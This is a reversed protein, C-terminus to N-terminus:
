QVGGGVGSDTLVALYRQRAAAPANRTAIRRMAASVARRAGEGNDNALLTRATKLARKLAAQNGPPFFLDEPYGEGLLERHVPIDTLVCLLGAQIGEAVAYSFAELEAYSGSILISYALLRQPMDDVYGHLHLWSFQTGIKQLQDRMPGDGYVDLEIGQMGACASVVDIVGKAPVLRAVMVARVREKFAPFDQPVDAREELWNPIARVRLHPWRRTHQEAVAESVTVICRAFRASIGYLLEKIAGWRMSLPSHAIVVPAVGHLFLVVPAWYAAGRGNLVIATKSARIDARQSWLWRLLAWRLAVWGRAPLEIWGAGSKTLGNELAPLPASVVVLHIHSRLLEALRILYVEGGGFFTNTSLAIVKETM